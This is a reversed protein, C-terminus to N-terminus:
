DDEEKDARALMVKVESAIDDWDEMLFDTDKMDEVIARADDDGAFYEDLFDEILEENDVEYTSVDGNEVIWGALIHEDIPCIYDDISECGRLAHCDDETWFWNYESNFYGENIMDALYIANHGENIWDRVWQTFYETSYIQEKERKESKLMENWADVIDDENWTDRIIRELSQQKTM